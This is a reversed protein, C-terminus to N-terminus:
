GDVLEGLTRDIVSRSLWINCVGGGCLSTAMKQAWVICDMAHERLCQNTEQEVKPLSRFSNKHRRRNMADNHAEGFDM